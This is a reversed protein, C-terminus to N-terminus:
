LRSHQQVVSTTDTACRGSALHKHKQHHTHSIASGTEEEILSEQLDRTPYLIFYVRLVSYEIAHYTTAYFQTHATLMKPHTYRRPITRLEKDRM